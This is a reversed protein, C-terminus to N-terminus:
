KKPNNPYASIIDGNAGIAIRTVVDNWVCESTVTYRGNGRGVRKYATQVSRTIDGISWSQPYFTKTDHATRGTGRDILTIDGQIVGSAPDISTVKLVYNYNSNSWRYIGHESVTGVSSPIYHCGEIIGRSKDIYGEFHKTLNMSEVRGSKRVNVIFSSSTSGSGVTTISLGLPLSDATKLRERLLKLDGNVENLLQIIQTPSGSVIRKAGDIAINFSVKGGSMLASTLFGYFASINAEELTKGFNFEDGFFISDLGNGVFAQIFEEKAEGFNTSLLQWFKSQSDGQTNGLGPIKSLLMTFATESLGNLVGYTLIKLQNEEGRSYAQAMSSGASGLGVGLSGALSAWSFSHGAITFGAGGTIAGLSLGIISPMLMNGIQSSVKYSIDNVLASDPSIKKIFEEYIGREGKSNKAANLLTLIFMSKYQSDSIPEMGLKSVNEVNSFWNQIGDLLGEFVTVGGDELSDCADSFGKRQNLRDKLAVLYNYAKDANKEDVYYNFLAMEDHSLYPILSYFERTQQKENILMNFQEHSNPDFFYSPSYFNRIIKYIEDESYEKSLYKAFESKDKDINYDALKLETGLEQICYKLNAIDNCYMEYKEINIHENDLLMENNMIVKDNSSFILNNEELYNKFNTRFDNIDINYDFTNTALSFDRMFLNELEKLEFEELDAINEGAELYLTAFTDKFSGNNLYKELNGFFDKEECLTVIKKLSEYDIVGNNAINDNIIDITKEDILGTSYLLPLWVKTKEGYLYKFEDTISTLCMEVYKIMNNLYEKKGELTMALYEDNNTILGYENYLENIFSLLDEYSYKSNEKVMEVASSMVMALSEIMSGLKNIEEGSTDNLTNYYEALEGSLCSAYSTDCNLLINAMSYLKDITEYIDSYNLDIKVYNSSIEGKKRSVYEQNEQSTELINAYSNSDINNKYYNEIADLKELEELLSITTGIIDNNEDIIIYENKEQDYEIKVDMGYLEKYKERVQNIKSEESM